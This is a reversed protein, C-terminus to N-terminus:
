FNSTNQNTNLPSAATTNSAAINPNNVSSSHETRESITSLHNFAETTEKQPTQGRQIFQQFKKEQQEVLRQSKELMQKEDEEDDDDEEEVNKENENEEEDSEEDEEEDEEDDEGKEVKILNRKTIEMVDLIEREREQRIQKVKSEVQIQENFPIREFSQVLNKVSSLGACLENSNHNKSNSGATAAENLNLSSSPGLSSSKLRNSYRSDKNPQIFPANPNTNHM